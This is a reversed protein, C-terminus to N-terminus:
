FFGSDNSNFREEDSNETENCITFAIEDEENFDDM